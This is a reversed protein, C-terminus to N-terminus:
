HGVKRTESQRDSSCLREVKGPGPARPGIIKKKSKRLSINDCAELKKKDSANVIRM